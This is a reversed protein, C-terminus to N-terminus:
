GALERKSQCTKQKTEGILRVICCQCGPLSVILWWARISGYLSASPRAQFIVCSEWSGSICPFTLYAKKKREPARFQLVGDNVLVGVSCDVSIM